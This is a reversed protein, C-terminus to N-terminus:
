RMPPSVQPIITDIVLSKGKSRRVTRVVPPAKTAERERPDSEASALSSIPVLSLMTALVVGTFRSTTSDTLPASWAIRTSVRM